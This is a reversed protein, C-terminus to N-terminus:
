NSGHLPSARPASPTYSDIKGNKLTMVRDASGITEKRHAFIIRTIGLKQIETNVRRECEADLHATGEDMVLIKPQCYLARALLIRQRQGSSVAIGMEGVMTNYRMPWSAIEDGIAAARACDEVLTMDIDSSFLTINELVTGSFLGEDQLVAAVQRFYNRYGLTALEIGDILVSGSTPRHLGLLIQALTSKGGGSPGTIAVAEGAQVVLNVDKLVSDSAEGYSYSVHKLEIKGIVPIDSHNESLFAPDDDTETIDGLRELYSDLERFDSYKDVVEIGATMFQMKYAMFAFIMGATFTGKMAMTVAIWIVTVTTLSLLINRFGDQVNSLKKYRVEAEAFSSFKDRWLSHRITERCSLRLSRMCSFSSLLFAQEDGNARVMESLAAKQRPLLFIRASAYLIIACIGVMSLAPSYILMLALTFAGLTINILLTPMEDSIVHRIPFISAFISIINGSERRRFWDIPLRFLKQTVNSSIDSGFKTGVLLIMNLRLLNLAGNMIIFAIFAISILALFNTDRLPLAKDLAIQAYYPTALACIQLITTLILIQIVRNKMGRIHTALYSLRNKSAKNQYSAKIEARMEFAFGTFNREAIDSTIWKSFGNPDHILAHGNRFRELVVFHNHNWHLIAPLVLEGINEWSLQIGRGALNFQDSLTSLTKLSAGRGLPAAADRASALDINRGLYNAVMVFCALGCEAVTRQQVMRIKARRPLHLASLMRLLRHLTGTPENMARGRSAGAHDDLAAEPDM